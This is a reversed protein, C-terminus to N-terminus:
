DEDNDKNKINNNIDNYYNLKIFIYYKENFIM